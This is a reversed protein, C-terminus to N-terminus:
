ALARSAARFAPCRYRRRPTPMTPPRLGDPSPVAKPSCTPERPHPQRYRMVSPPLIPAFRSAFGPIVDADLFPSSSPRVSGNTSTLKIAPCYLRGM